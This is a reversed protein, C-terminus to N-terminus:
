SIELSAKSEEELMKINAKDCRDSCFYQEKDGEVLFFNQCHLCINLNIEKKVLNEKINNYM